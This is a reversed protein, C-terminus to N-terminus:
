AYQLRERPRTLPKKTENKKKERTEFHELTESLVVYFRSM